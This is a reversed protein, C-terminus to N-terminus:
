RQAAKKQEILWQSTQLWSFAVQRMPLALASDKEYYDTLDETRYHYLSPKADHGERWVYLLSDSM